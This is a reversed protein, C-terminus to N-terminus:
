GSAGFPVFLATIAGNSGTWTWSPGGSRFLLRYTRPGASPVTFVFSPSFDSGDGTIAIDRHMLPSEDGTAADELWVRAAGGTGTEQVIDIAGNVLVFGASPATITVEAASVHATTAPSTISAAQTGVAARVLGNARRGGLKAANPVQALSSEKVDAGTLANKKVKSGVVADKKLQVTGVSNQPLVVAAYGVGSLAVALAVCAVILAPSPRRLRTRKM